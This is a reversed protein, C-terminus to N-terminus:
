LHDSLCLSMELTVGYILSLLLALGWSDRKGWQEFCQLRVCPWGTGRSLLRLM